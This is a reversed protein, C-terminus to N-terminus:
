PIGAEVELLTLHDHHAPYAKQRLRHEPCLPKLVVNPADDVWDRMQRSKRPGGTRCCM